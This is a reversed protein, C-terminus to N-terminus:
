GSGEEAITDLTNGYNNGFTSTSASASVLNNYSLNLYKLKKNAALVELM